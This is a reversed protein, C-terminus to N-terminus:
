NTPTANYVTKDFSPLTPAAAYGLPDLQFLNELSRLLSFHNYYDMNDSGAKVYDSILLLGVRGGGGTPTTSGGTVPATPGTTGSPSSPDPTQPSPVPLNPYAPTECCASPDASPGSQPAQDFTIAILGGDKYAASKKIQPVVQRLFADATALGAPQNPACPEESGDHCRNPVIYAFAPAKTVDKLDPALQDLGVNDDNCPPTDIQSHFYVFPNRWTVYADAPRPAQDADATGVAPHRCTKPEGTQSNGIDEVYSKWTKGQATLQDGITQAQTPYVCGTGAVQGDTGVTGPTVDTYQPCDTATEPTPGQGSILAIGNALPGATVAYYNNLLEGQSRLDKALYTAPSATGYAQDFGHESLVILFVHRIPPLLPEAPPPATNSGQNNSPAPTTPTAAPAPAASSPANSSGSATDAPAPTSAPQTAVQAPAAAPTQLAVVIPSSASSNQAPSVVSGLLVGFALLSMVAVAAVRPAPMSGGLSQWGSRGPEPAPVDDAPASDDRGAAVATAILGAIERPLPDRREGCEICYRQDHALPASCAHCHATRTV